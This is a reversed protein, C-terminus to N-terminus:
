AVDVAKGRAPGIMAVPGVDPGAERRPAPELQEGDLPPAAIEDGVFAVGVIIRLAGVGREIMGVPLVLLDSEGADGRYFRAQGGVGLEAEVADVVAAADRDARRWPLVGVADHDAGG